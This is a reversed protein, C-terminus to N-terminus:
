NKRLTYVEFYGFCENRPLFRNLLKNLSMEGEKIPVQSWSPVCFRREIVEFYPSFSKRFVKHTFYTRHDNKASYRIFDGKILFRIRNRIHFINPMSFMFLGGPRLVRHAQRILHYPNEL